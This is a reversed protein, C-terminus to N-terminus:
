SENREGATPDFPGRLESVDDAQRSGAFDGREELVLARFHQDTPSLDDIPTDMLQREIDPHDQLYITLQSEVQEWLDNRPLDPTLFIGIGDRIPYVANCGECRAEAKEIHDNFQEDIQWDLSQHCVPCELMDILFKDM